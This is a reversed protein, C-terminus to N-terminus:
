ASCSIIVFISERCIGYRADNVRYFNYFKQSKSTLINILYKGPESEPEPEDDTLRNLFFKYNNMM